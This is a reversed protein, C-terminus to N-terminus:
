NLCILSQELARPALQKQTPPVRLGISKWGSGSPMSYHVNVDQATDSTSRLTLGAAVAVQNKACTGTVTQPSSTATTYPVETSVVQHGPLASSSGCIVFGRLKWSAVPVATSKAAFDWGYAGASFRDLEGDVIANAASLVAFGGGLARVPPSKQTSCQVSLSQKGTTTSAPTDATLVTYGAVKTGCVVSLKLKWPTAGGVSAKIVAHVRAKWSKGNTAPAFYLPLGRYVAENASLAAYGAGYAVTGTPCAATIEKTSPTTVATEVSVLTYGALAEATQSVVEDGENEGADGVEAVCGASGILCFGLLGVCWGRLGVWGGQIKM